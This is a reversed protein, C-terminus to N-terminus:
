LPCGVDGPKCAAEGQSGIACHANQGCDQDKNCGGPYVCALGSPMSCCSNAVPECVGGAKAGCDASTHCFALACFRAPIGWAGAPACLQPPGGNSACDKDTACADAVFMNYLPMAPGGCYPLSTSAYCKGVKCDSSTCCQDMVPPGPPQCMTAEPPMKSCVKYGGPALEICTGGNCDADTACDGGSVTGSSSTGSSGSSSTSGSSSGSSS